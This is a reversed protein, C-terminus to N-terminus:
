EVWFRQPLNRTLEDFKREFEEADTGTYDEYLKDIAKSKEEFVAGKYDLETVVATLCDHATKLDWFLLLIQFVKCVTDLLESKTLRLLRKKAEEQAWSEDWVTMGFYDYQGVDYGLVTRVEGLAAVVVDDWLSHDVDNWRWYDGVDKMAEQLEIAGSSLDDFLERYDNYYGKQDITEYGYPDGNEGIEYLWNMVDRYTLDRLISKKWLPKKSGKM